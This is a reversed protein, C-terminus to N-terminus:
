IGTSGKYISRKKGMKSIHNPYTLAVLIAPYIKNRGIKKKNRQTNLSPTTLYPFKEDYAM